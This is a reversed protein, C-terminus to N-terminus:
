IKLGLIDLWEQQIDIADKEYNKIILNKLHNSPLPENKYMFFQGNRDILSARYLQKFKKVGYAEILFKVISGAKSYNVSKSKQEVDFTLDVSVKGLCYNIVNLFDLHKNSGSQDLYVALGEELIELHYIQKDWYYVLLHAIEHGFSVKERCLPHENYILSAFNLHPVAADVMMKLEIATKLDPVFYIIIKKETKIGLFESINKYAIERNIKIQKIDKMAASKRLYKYIFHESESNIWTERDDYM